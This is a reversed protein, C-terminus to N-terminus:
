KLASIIINSVIGLASLLVAWESASINNKKEKIKPPVYIESRPTVKPYSKFFLFKKVKKAMGNPYIVVTGSKSANRTYSGSLKLYKKLKYSKTYPLLTPYYVEGYIKVLNRYKNISLIDGDELVLNEPGDPDQFITNLDISILEKDMMLDTQYDIGVSDAEFDILKQLLRDREASTVDKYVRRRITLISSDASRRFGGARLIVDTIKENGRSLIYKGPTQVEGVVYVSRPIVWGKKNRVIINDFPKLLFDGKIDVLFIENEVVQGESAIKRRSIEVRSSDGNDTVGGAILVVDSLRLNERWKFKLPKRVCGEISVFQNEKFDFISNVVVIDENMLSLKGGAGMLSDLDVSIIAPQRNALLRYINIKKVFAESLLGGAKEILKLLDVGENIEYIGPREISGKITVSNVFRDLVKNVLINDGNQLKYAAFQRLDIDSVVKGTDTVRINTVSNKHAMQDFGGCYELLFDMGETDLMEYKGPRKVLGSVSVRNSYYPIRVIDGEQLLINDSKIGKSLFSYLDVVKKVVNGRILEIKRYSGMDGPGGCLYLLHFLTSYSSVSYTGPKVAQGIVTVRITRIKSLTVQVQTKGSRIASYITAALKDKIKGTAQEITLGSVFLPGINPLYIEGEENVKLVYRQESLGFINVVIEDDAGLVYSSPTPIRLNPEFMLSNMAFLESGFITFDREQQQMPLDGPQDAKVERPIKVGSEIGESREQMTVISGGRVADIRERLRQAEEEPLGNKKLYEILNETSMNNESSKSKLERIEEDSLKDIKLGSIDKGKLLDIQATATSLLQFSISLFLFIIKFPLKTM